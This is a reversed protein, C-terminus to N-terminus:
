SGIALTMLVTTVVAGLVAVGLAVWAIIRPKTSHSRVIVSAIPGGGLAVLCFLLAATNAADKLQPSHGPMNVTAVSVGVSAVLAGAAVVCTLVWPLVISTKVRVDHTM